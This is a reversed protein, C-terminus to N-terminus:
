RIPERAFDAATLEDGRENALEVLPLQWEGAVRGRVRWMRITYQSISLDPRNRQLAEALGEDGGYNAAIQKLDIMDLVNFLLNNHLDLAFLYTFRRGAERM